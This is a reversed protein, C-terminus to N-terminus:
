IRTLIRVAEALSAVEKTLQARTRKLVPAEGAIEELADASLQSVFMPSFLLMLLVKDQGLYYGIFLKRSSLINGLDKLKQECVAQTKV